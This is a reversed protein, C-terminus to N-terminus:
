LKQIKVYLSENVTFYNGTFQKTKNDIIDM